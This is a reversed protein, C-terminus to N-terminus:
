PGLTEVCIPNVDYTEALNEYKKLKNNEAASAVKGAETSSTQHLKPCSHLQMYLGVGDNKGNEM